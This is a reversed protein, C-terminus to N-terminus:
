NLHINPTRIYFTFRYQEGNRIELWRLFAKSELVNTQNTVVRNWSFFRADHAWFHKESQKSGNGSAAQQCALLRWFGVTSMKKDSAVRCLFYSLYGFITRKNVVYKKNGAMKSFSKVWSFRTSSYQVVFFFRSSWVCCNQKNSLDARCDSAQILSSPSM